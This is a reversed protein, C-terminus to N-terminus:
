PAPEREEVLLDGTPVLWANPGGPAPDTIQPIGDNEFIYPETIAVDNVFVKGDGIAVGRNSVGCCATTIKTVATIQAPIARDPNFGLRGLLTSLKARDFNGPLDRGGRPM